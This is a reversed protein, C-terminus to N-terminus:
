IIQKLKELKRKRIYQLDIRQLKLNRLEKLTILKGNILYKDGLKEVM